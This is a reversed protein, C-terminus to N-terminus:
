MMIVQEKFNWSEIVYAGMVDRRLKDTTRKKIGKQTRQLQEKGGEENNVNKWKRQEEMKSIMEECDM